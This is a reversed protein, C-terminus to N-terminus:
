RRRRRGLQGASLGADCSPGISTASSDTFKLWSSIMRRSASPDAAIVGFTLGDPPGSAPWGTIAVPRIRTISTACRMVFPRPGDHRPGRTSRGTGAASGPRRGRLPRSIATTRAATIPMPWVLYLLWRRRRTARPGPGRPLAARARRRRASTRRCRRWRSRCPVRRARLRSSARATAPRRARHPPCAWGGPACRRSPRRTSRSRPRWARRTPDSRAPAPRRSRSATRLCRWTPARPHGTPRGPRPRCTRETSGCSCGAIALRGLVDAPLHRDLVAEVRELVGVRM